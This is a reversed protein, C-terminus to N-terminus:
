KKGVCSDIMLSDTINPLGSALFTLTNMYSPIYLYDMVGGDVVMLLLMAIVIMDLDCGRTILFNTNYM